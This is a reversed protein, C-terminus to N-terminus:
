APNNTVGPSFIGRDPRTLGGPFAELNQRRRDPYIKTMSLSVLAASMVDPCITKIRLM